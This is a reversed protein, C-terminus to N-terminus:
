MPNTNARVKDWVSVSTQPYSPVLWRDISVSLNQVLGDHKMLQAKLANFTIGEGRSIATEHHEDIDTIATADLFLAKTLEDVEGEDFRMGNEDMWARMVHQLEKEQILGDGLIGTWVTM